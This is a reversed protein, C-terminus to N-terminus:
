PKTWSESVPAYTNYERGDLTVFNVSLKGRWYYENTILGYAVDMFTGTAPEDNLVCFYKNGAGDTKVTGDKGLMKISQIIGGLNLVTVEIGCSASMTYATVTEGAATVGFVKSTIAM